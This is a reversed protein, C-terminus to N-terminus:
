IKLGAETFGMKKAVSAATEMAVKESGMVSPIHLEIKNDAIV